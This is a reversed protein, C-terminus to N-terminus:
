VRERKQDPVKSGSGSGSRNGTVLKFGASSKGALHAGHYHRSVIEIDEHHREGDEDTYEIRLDPLPLKGDVIELDLEEALQARRQDRAEGSVSGGRNMESNIVSKFEYDLVVRDVTGGAREIADAAERYAPYIAADHELERIKVLGSHFRQEEGIPQQDTLLREGERSLVVVEMRSWDSRTVTSKEMLGSGILHKTQDQPLDKANVTRFSGVTRLTRLEDDSLRYSRDRGPIEHRESSPRTERTQPEASRTEREPHQM